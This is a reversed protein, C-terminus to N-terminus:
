RALEKPTEATSGSTDVRYAQIRERLSEPIPTSRLRGNDNEVWVLVVDADFCPQGDIRLTLSRSGLESVALTVTLKDGLVGPRHIRLDLQVTPIGIGNQLHLETFPFALAEGFWDEVVRNLLTPYREPHVLGTDDCHASSFTVSSHYAKM